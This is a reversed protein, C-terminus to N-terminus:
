RKYKNYLYKYLVDENNYLIFLPIKKYKKEILVVNKESLVQEYILTTIVSKNIPFFYLLTPVKVLLTRNEYGVCLNFRTREFWRELGIQLAENFSNFLKLTSFDTNKYSTTYIYNGTENEIKLYSSSFDGKEKYWVIYKM